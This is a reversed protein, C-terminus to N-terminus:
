LNAIIYTDMNSVLQEVLGSNYQESLCPATLSGQAAERCVEGKDKEHKFCPQFRCPSEIDFSHTFQYHKTRSETTFSSYIGIGPKEVGERFHIAATDVSIVITSDYVDLLFEKIGKAQILKIRPDGVGQIFKRDNETANFEHLYINVIKNGLILKVAKYISEFSMSRMNASARPCILISVTSQDINSLETHARTKILKPRCLRPKVNVGMSAYYIEYWNQWDGGEVIGDCVFRKINKKKRGWEIFNMNRFVPKSFDHVTQPPNEWWDFVPRYQEQTLFIMNNNETVNRIVSLAILDGIGGSRIVMITEKDGSVFQNFSSPIDLFEIHGSLGKERMTKAMVLAVKDDMLYVDGAKFFVGKGTLSKKIWLLVM